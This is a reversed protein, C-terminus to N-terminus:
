KAQKEEIFKELDKDIEADQKAFDLAERLTNKPNYSALAKMQM